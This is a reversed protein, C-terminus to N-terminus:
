SFCLALRAPCGLSETDNFDPASLKKPLVSLDATHSSAFHLLLSGSLPPSCGRPLSFFFWCFSSLFRFGMARQISLHITRSDHNVMLEFCLARHKEKPFASCYLFTLYVVALKGALRRDQLPPLTQPPFSASQTGPFQGPFSFMPLFIDQSETIVMSPKESLFATGDPFRRM